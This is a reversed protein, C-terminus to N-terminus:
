GNAYKEILIAGGSLAFPVAIMTAVVGNFTWVLGLILGVWVSLCWACVFAEAVVNEGYRIGSESYRVGIRHRITEFINAPGLENVLLSSIRWTALTLILFTMSIFFVPM